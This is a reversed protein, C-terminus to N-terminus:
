PTLGAAARRAANAAFRAKVGAFAKEFEPQLAERVETRAISEIDIRPRYAAKQVFKLIQQLGEVKKKGVRRYVGPPLWSGSPGLQKSGPKVAFFEVDVGMSASRRQSRMAINRASKTESKKLQLVNVIQAYTRPKVNGFRDIYGGKAATTGPTTVWGPPLYGTRTLLFETRKQRRAPAGLAGPRIYERKAKGQEEQSEPFYVEAVLNKKNAKTTFVGRVTFPTPRDFSVPMQARVKEQVRKALGTLMSAEVYPVANPLERQVLRLPGAMDVGIQIKIMEQAHALGM